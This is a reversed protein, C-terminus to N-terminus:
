LLVRYIRRTAMTLNSESIQSRHCSACYIHTRVQFVVRHRGTWSTFGVRSIQPGPHEGPAVGLPQHATCFLSTVEMGEANCIGPWSTSGLASVLMPLHRESWLSSHNGPNPMQSAASQFPPLLASNYLQHMPRTPHMSIQHSSREWPNQVSTILWLM